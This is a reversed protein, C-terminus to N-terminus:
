YSTGNMGLKTQGYGFTDLQTVFYKGNPHSTDNSINSVVTKGVQLAGSAVLGGAVPRQLHNADRQVTFNALSVEYPLRQVLSPIGFYQATVNDYNIILEYYGRYYVDQWQLEPNHAVLWASAADAKAQTINQGYPCPSSVASGAFEVGIAGVGTAPDYAHNGLYVLDNV